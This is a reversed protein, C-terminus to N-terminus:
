TQSIDCVYTIQSIKHTISTAHLMVLPMNLQHCRDSSQHCLQSICARHCTQSIVNSQHSIVSLVHRVSQHCRDSSVVSQYMDSSVDSQSIVHTQNCMDSQHSVLCTQSSSQCSMDSQCTDILYYTQCIVSLVHRVSVHRDSLVDSSQRCTQEM